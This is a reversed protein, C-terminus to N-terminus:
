SGDGADEPPDPLELPGAWHTVGYAVVEEVTVEYEGHCIVLGVEDDAPLDQKELEVLHVTRRKRGAYFIWYLGPKTPAETTWNVKM